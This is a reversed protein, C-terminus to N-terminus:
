ASPSPKIRKDYLEDEIESVKKTMIELRRKLNDNEINIKLLENKSVGGIAIEHSFKTKYVINKGRKNFVMLKDPEDAEWAPNMIKTPDAFIEM